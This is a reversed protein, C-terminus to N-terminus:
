VGGSFHYAVRVVCLSVEDHRFFVCGLVIRQFSCAIILSISDKKQKKSIKQSFDMKESLIHFLHYIRLLRM